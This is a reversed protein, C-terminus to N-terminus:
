LMFQFSISASIVAVCCCSILWHPWPLIFHIASSHGLNHALRYLVWIQWWEDGCYCVLSHVKNHHSLSTLPKYDIYLTDQTINHCKVEAHANYSANQQLIVCCARYTDSYRLLQWLLWHFMASISWKKIIKNSCIILNGFALYPFPRARQLQEIQGPLICVCVILSLFVLM